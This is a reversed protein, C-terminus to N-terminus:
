ENGAEKINVKNQDEMRRNEVVYVYELNFFNTGAKVNLTLFNSSPDQIIKTVRGVMLQAPFNSSYPSTIVTDGVKPAASKSINKLVLINPDAGDWEISGAIKDRKLMASVKSNRHLLSMITSYNENVEVVVGVISGDPSIAAMDKKIGQKSGREIVIYNKQLTFTNGVVKAPYYYFKRIKELSDKRLILTGLKKTTDFGVFNQALQNRLAVNEAALKENTAKLSFFYTWSSYYRNINGTVQNSWGGFFTEHTKSNSSLIVLSV